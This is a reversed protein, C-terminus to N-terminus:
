SAYFRKALNRSLPWLLLFITAPIYAGAFVMLLAQIPLLLSILLGITKPKPSWPLIRNKIEAM